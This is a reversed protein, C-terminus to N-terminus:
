FSAPGNREKGKTKAFFVDAHCAIRELLLMDLM